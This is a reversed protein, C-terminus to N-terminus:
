MGLCRMAVYVRHSAKLKCKLRSSLPLNRWLSEIGKNFFECALMYAAANLLAPSKLIPTCIPSSHGVPTNASHHAFRFPIPSECRGDHSNDPWCNLTIAASRVDAVKNGEICSPLHINSGQHPRYKLPMKFDQYIVMQYVLAPIM